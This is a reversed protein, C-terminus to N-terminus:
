RSTMIDDIELSKLVSGSVDLASDVWIDVTIHSYNDELTDNTEPNTSNVHVDFEYTPAIGQKHYPVFIM